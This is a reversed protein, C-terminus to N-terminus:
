DVSVSLWMSLVCDWAAGRIELMDRAELDGMWLCARREDGTAAAAHGLGPWRSPTGLYRVTEGRDDCMDKMHVVSCCPWAGRLAVRRCLRLRWRESPALENLPVPREPDPRGCRGDGKWKERREERLSACVCCGMCSDANGIGQWSTGAKSSRDVRGGGRRAEPRRVFVSSSSTHTRRGQEKECACHVILRKWRVRGGDDSESPM